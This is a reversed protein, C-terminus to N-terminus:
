DSVNNESIEMKNDRYSTNSRALVDWTDAVLPVASVLLRGGATAPEGLLCFTEVVGDLAECSSSSIAEFFSSSAARMRAWVRSPPM